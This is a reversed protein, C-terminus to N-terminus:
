EDGTYIPYPQFLYQVNVHGQDNVRHHETLVGVQFTTADPELRNVFRKALLFAPLRHYDEDQVDPKFEAVMAGDFLLDAAGNYLDYWDSGTSLRNKWHDQLHPHVPDHWASWGQEDKTRYLFTNIHDTPDPAFMLYNQYFWPVIYRESWQVIGTPASNKGFQHLLVMAFHGVFMLVIMVSVWLPLRNSSPM